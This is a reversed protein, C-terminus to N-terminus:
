QLEPVSKKITLCFKIICACVLSTINTLETAMGVAVSYVRVCHLLQHSFGEGHTVALLLFLIM